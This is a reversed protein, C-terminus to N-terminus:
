PAAGGGKGGLMQEMRARQDPPLSKLREQMRARMEPTVMSPRERRTYGAPVDFESAPVPERIVKVLELVFRGGAGQGSAWRIPLGDLGARALAAAVGEDGEGRATAWLPVRGLTTSVCVEAQHSGDSEIRARECPYGAVSSPGLRTVKWDSSRAQPHTEIVAYSRDAEDISYVHNADGAKVLTTAKMGPMGMQTMRPSTFEIHVRAGGPGVVAEATGHQDMSGTLQYEARGEFDRAAATATFSAAALALPVLRIM